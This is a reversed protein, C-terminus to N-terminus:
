ASSFRQGTQIIDGNIVATKISANILPGWSVNVQNYKSYIYEKIDYRSPSKGLEKELAPVSKSAMTSTSSNKNLVKKFTLKSPSRKLSKGIKGDEKVCRNTKPNRIKGPSCPKM